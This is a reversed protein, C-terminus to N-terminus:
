SNQWYYKSTLEQYTRDLGGHGTYAHALQLLYEQALKSRIKLGTPIVLTWTARKLIYLFKDKYQITFINEGNRARKYVEKYLNGNEMCEVYQQTLDNDQLWNAVVLDPHMPDNEDEELVMTDKIYQM